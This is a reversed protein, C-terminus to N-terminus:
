AFDTEIITIAIASFILPTAWAAIVPPFFGGKGFALAVANTVYYLFGVLLAVGLAAFTTGKRSRIMLAFPLGVLVIVFNGFPYAIKQHLDVRLNNLAKSAGSRSFRIIYDHLQRINMSSVQLRQQLFDEPTEKIDMLKEKYVTIKVPTELNTPDYATVQCQTFKWAIGTWAGKLAVIKQAMNQKEDYEVITIGYLESKHQDFTDVFYLRNKLGYFTLNTIKEQQKKIRDTELIINENRIKESLAQAKTVCKENVWFITMSVLLGFIIAPKTIQWFNMGSSRMAIVENANNLRGFTFLVAILCAISSTQVLMLPITLLYFEVLIQIPVKHNIYEDLNSTVDILIYLFCFILVTAIFITIISKTIYRDLIRM